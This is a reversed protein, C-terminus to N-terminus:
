AIVKIIEDVSDIAAEGGDKVLAVLSDLLIAFDRNHTTSVMIAVILLPKVYIQAM